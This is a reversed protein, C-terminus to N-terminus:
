AVTAQPRRANSDLRALRTTRAVNAEVAASEFYNALGRRRAPELRAPLPGELEERVAQELTARLGGELPSRGSLSLTELRGAATRYDYLELQQGSELPETTGARWNSYTAYKAGATIVGTVHLPAAAAHTALAFETVVEDTAHAAYRRGAAAPDALIAGLDPRRALHSFRADSRWNRSGCAITLLLPAVDVSSTLQARPTDLAATITRRRPDSVILPVRIAEEYLSAGKGRMGHSGAYEGHDSTFVIVTNAAVDPRTALADLVVGIQADVTRQLQAYLDLLSAWEQAARPGSFAVDGFSQAAIQQLSRQLLPKGRTELQAPTEFNPPLAAPSGSVAIMELAPAGTYRYWWAIDHPNVFSVTTCWPQTDAAERYFRAFQEAIAPDAVEGQGPAGNPSPFTGGGFGYRALAAPGSRASWSGDGDTLHWKGYWCTEYGLARLMSGWTPFAPDLTSAGTIMCGTQHTHLGTLLAARSPTCDNSATYHRVFSVGARRLRAVNAPFGDDIVDAGLWCPARMQDVLIVLINPRVQATPRRTTAAAASLPGALLM